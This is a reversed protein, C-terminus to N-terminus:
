EVIRRILKAHAEFAKDIKANFAQIDDPYTSPMECVTSITLVKSMMEKNLESTEETLAKYTKARVENCLDLLATGSVCQPIANKAKVYVPIGMSASSLGVAVLMRPNKEDCVMVASASAMYRAISSNDVVVKEPNDLVCGGEVNRYNRSFELFDHPAYTTKSQMQAMAIEYRPVSPGRKVMDGSFSFNARVDFGEARQELDYRVYGDQSVEFYAAKGSPDGVAYNTVYKRERNSQALWAEFEDVTACEGLIVGMLSIASGKLTGKKTQAINHTVTNLVAFGKENIGCYTYKDDLSVLATYGYKAGEVYAVRCNWTSADRHKWLLPVGESSKTASIIASTCALAEGCYVLAILVAIIIRLKKM